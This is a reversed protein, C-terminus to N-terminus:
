CCHAGCRADLVAGLARTAELDLRYYVRGGERRSHVLGAKELQKLHHNATADTVELMPAVDCTCAEHEPLTALWMVIRVRNADGLARMRAAIAAADDASPAQHGQTANAAGIPPCCIAASTDILPLQAPM